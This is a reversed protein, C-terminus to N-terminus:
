AVDPGTSDNAGDVPVDASSCAFSTACAAAIVLSAIHATIARMPRGKTRSVSSCSAYRASQLRKRRRRAPDSRDAPHADGERRAHAQGFWAVGLPDLRDAHAAGADGARLRALARSE